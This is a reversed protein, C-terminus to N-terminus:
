DFFNWYLKPAVAACAHNFISALKIMTSLMSTEVRNKRKFIPQWVQIRVLISLNLTQPGVMLRDPLIKDRVEENYMEQQQQANQPSGVRKVRRWQQKCGRVAHAFLSGVMLRDPLIKDHVEENYM